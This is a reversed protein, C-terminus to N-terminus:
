INYLMVLKYVIAATVTIGRKLSRNIRLAYVGCVHEARVSRTNSRM